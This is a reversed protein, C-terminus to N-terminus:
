GEATKAGEAAEREAAAPAAEEATAGHGGVFRLAAPYIHNRLPETWTREWHDM